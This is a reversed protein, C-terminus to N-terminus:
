RHLHQVETRHVHWGLVPPEVMALWNSMKNDLDSWHVGALPPGPHLQRFGYSFKVMGLGSIPVFDPLPDGPVYFTNGLGRVSWLVSELATSAPYLRYLVTCVPEPCATLEALTHEGPTVDHEVIFLRANAPWIAALGEAYDTDQECRWDLVGVGEAHSWPLPHDPWLSPAYPRYAIAKM